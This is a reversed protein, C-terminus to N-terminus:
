KGEAIRLAYDYDALNDVDCSLRPDADMLARCECGTIHSARAEAQSITLRRTLFRFLFTPGLLRAMQYQSKRAAFVREILARNRELAAPRVVVLSGGTYEGGSLPTWVNPSGPFADEYGARSVVPFLIDAAPENGARHLLDCVAEPHLFPLDSSAVVARGEGIVSRLANLGIRVNEPGTEGEEHVENAGADFAVSEIRDRPGVVVIRTVGGASRLASIVCGLLSNGAVPALAKIDTRAREALDGSLRGGATVVAAVGHPGGRTM